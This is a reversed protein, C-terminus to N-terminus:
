AEGLVARVVADTDALDSLVLDPAHAALQEMGFTGTAVAITRAAGAKGCAIDRPTDGIVVPQGAIDAYRAAAKRRAIPVLKTRDHDDSGYAGIGLDFFQELDLARLKLAAVPALNGTLLTQIAGQERLRELAPVVGPLLRLHTHLEHAVADLLEGYRQNFRPLAELAAAMEIEHLALTELVIQGDTKGGYDIRQIEDPLAYVERLAQLFLRGVTGNGRMLTGDIDWLVLRRM